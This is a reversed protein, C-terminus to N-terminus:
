NDCEEEDESAEVADIVETIYTVLEPNRLLMEAFGAGVADAVAEEMGDTFLDKLPVVLAHTLEHFLVALEHAPKMGPQLCLDGKVIDIEGDNNSDVLTTRYVDLTWPGVRIHPPMNM